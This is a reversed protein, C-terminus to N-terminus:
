DVPLPGMKQVEYIRSNMADVDAWPNHPASQQQNVLPANLDSDSATVFRKSELSAFMVVAVILSVSTVIGAALFTVGGYGRISTFAFLSGIVVPGVCGCLSTLSQVIGLAHGIRDSGYFKSLVASLGAPFWSCPVAQLPLLCFAAIKTKTFSMGVQFVVLGLLGAYIMREGNMWGSKIARPLILLNCLFGLIGSLFMTLSIDKPAFDVIQQLYFLEVGASGDRQIDTLCVIVCATVLAVKRTSVAKGFIHIYSEKQADALNRPPPIEEEEEEEVEEEAAVRVHHRAPNTEPIVFIIYLVEVVGIAACLLAFGARGLLANSLNGIMPWLAIGLMVLGGVMSYMWLRFPQDDAAADALCATVVVLPGMISNGAVASLLMGIYYLTLSSHRLGILLGIVPLILAVCSLILFPKRGHRDSARGVVVVGVMMTASIVANLISGYFSAAATACSFDDSKCFLNGFYVVKLRVLYPILLGFNASGLFSLPLIKYALGHSPQLQQGAAVNSSSAM